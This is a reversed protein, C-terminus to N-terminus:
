RSLYILVSVIPAAKLVAGIEKTGIILSKAKEPQLESMDHFRRIALITNLHKRM